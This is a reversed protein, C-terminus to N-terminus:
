IVGKIIFYKDVEQFFTLPNTNLSYSVKLLNHSNMQDGIRQYAEIKRPNHTLLDKAIRLGILRLNILHHQDRPREFDVWELYLQAVSGPNLM